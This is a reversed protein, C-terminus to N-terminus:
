VYLTHIGYCVKPHINLKKFMSQSLEDILLNIKLLIIESKINNTKDCMYHTFEM